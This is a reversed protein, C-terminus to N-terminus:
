LEQKDLELHIFATIFLGTKLPKTVNLMELGPSLNIVSTFLVQEAAEVYEGKLIAERLTNFVVDRLPLYANANLELEGM